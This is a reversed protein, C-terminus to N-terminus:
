KGETVTVAQDDALQKTRQDAIEAALQRAADRQAHIRQAARQVHEQPTIPVTV